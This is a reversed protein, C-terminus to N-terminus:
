RATAAEPKSLFLSDAYLKVPRPLLKQPHGVFLASAGSTAKVTAREIIKGTAVEVVSIELIATDSRGSWHTARDEWHVISPAILYTANMQRAIEMAGEFTQPATAMEVHRLHRAFADKVIQAAM